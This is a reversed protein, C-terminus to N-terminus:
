KVHYSLLFIFTFLMGFSQEQLQIIAFTNVVFVIYKSINRMCEDMGHWAMRGYLYVSSMKQQKEM